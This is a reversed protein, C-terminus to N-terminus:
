PGIIGLAASRIAQAALRASHEGRAGALRRAFRRVGDATTEGTAYLFAAVLVVLLWQVLVLGITGVTGLVWGIIQRTYPALRASLDETRIAAADKWRAALRTGVLPLREIWSPPAPVSWTALKEMGGAIDQSYSVITSLAVALPVILGLLLVITMATVALGRRGGLMSQVRLMLPWTAVVIMTAWIVAPLFPRLVWFSAVIMGVIFLIALTARALDRSIQRREMAVNQWLRRVRGYLVKTGRSGRCASSLGLRLSGALVGAAVTTM